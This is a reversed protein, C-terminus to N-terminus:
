GVYDGAIQPDDRLWGPAADPPCREQQIGRGPAVPPRGTRRLGAGAGTTTLGASLSAILRVVSRSSPLPM